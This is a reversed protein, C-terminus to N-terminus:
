WIRAMSTGCHRQRCMDNTVADLADGDTNGDNVLDVQQTHVLRYRMDVQSNELAQNAFEVMAALRTPGDKGADTLDKTYLGLM